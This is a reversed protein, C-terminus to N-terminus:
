PKKRLTLLLFVALVVTDVIWVMGWPLLSLLQNIQTSGHELSLRNILWILGSTAGILVLALKLLGLSGQRQYMWQCLKGLAIAFVTVPLFSLFM